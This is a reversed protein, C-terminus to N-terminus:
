LMELKPFYEFHENTIFKNTKLRKIHIYNKKNIKKLEDVFFYKLLKPYKNQFMIIENKGSFSVILEILDKPLVQKCYRSLSLTNTFKHIKTLM